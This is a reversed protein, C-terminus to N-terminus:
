RASLVRDFLSALEATAARTTLSALSTPDPDVLRRGAARADVADEIRRALGETDEGPHSWGLRTAALIQAVDPSASAALIPARALLYDYLKGPIFYPEDGFSPLLALDAGAVLSIGEAYPLVTRHEFLDAIGLEAALDLDEQAVRGLNLLRLAGQGLGRRRAVLALARLFAALSRHGYCNGFHILTIADDRRPVVPHDEFGSRICVLPTAGARPRYADRIACTTAVIASASRLMSQELLRIIARAWAPRTAASPNYSWPDRLDLVLPVAALRAGAAGALATEWPPGTVFVLDPRIERALRAIRLAVPPILRTDPGIVTAGRLEARVRAFGRRDAVRKWARTPEPVTGDSGYVRREMRALEEPSLYARRVDCSPLEAPATPDLREDPPAAATLVTTRYGHEPLHRAFGAARKGGVSFRPPFWYSVLLAHRM